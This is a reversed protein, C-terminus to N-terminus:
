FVNDSVPAGELIEIQMDLQSINTLWQSAEMESQFIRIKAAFKGEAVLQFQRGKGFGLGSAMLIAAKGSGIESKFSALNDAAQRVVEMTASTYDVLRSDFLVNMGSKWFDRSVVDAIMRRHDSANFRGELAVKAYGDGDTFEISWNM